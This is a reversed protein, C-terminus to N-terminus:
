EDAGGWFLRAAERRPQASGKYALWLLVGLAKRSRVTVPTDGTRVRPDGLLAVRLTEMRTM